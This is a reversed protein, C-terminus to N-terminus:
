RWPRATTPPLWAAPTAIPSCGKGTAGTELVGGCGPCLVNWALEFLGLDTAHLFAAITQEEDLGRKAAFDLVNVRCLSADRGDAVLAEIAAAATPTSSQRLLGFLANTESSSRM